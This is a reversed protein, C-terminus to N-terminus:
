EISTIIGGEVNVIRGDGTSFSGTYASGSSIKGTVSFSNTNMTFSGTTYTTNTGRVRWSNSNLDAFGYDGPEFISLGTDKHVYDLGYVGSSISNDKFWVRIKQGLRPTAYTVGPFNPTIRSFWVENDKELLNPIMVRVRALNKPDNVDIVVGIHENALPNSERVRGEPNFLAM